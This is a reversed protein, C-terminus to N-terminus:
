WLNTGSFIYMYTLHHKQSRRLCLTRWQMKTAGFNSVNVKKNGKKKPTRPPLTLSDCKEIPKKLKAILTPTFGLSLNSAPKEASESTNPAINEWNEHKSAKSLTADENLSKVDCKEVYPSFDDCLLAEQNSFNCYTKMFEQRPKPTSRRGLFNKTRLLTVESTTPEVCIEKVSDDLSEREKVISNKRPAPSICSASNSKKRRGMSNYDPSSESRSNRTDTSSSCYSTQGTSNCRPQMPIYSYETPKKTISDTGPQCQTESNDFQDNTEPRRAPEDKEANDTEVSKSSISIDLEFFDTNSPQSSRKSSNTPHSFRPIDYLDNNVLGALGSSVTSSRNTSPTWSEGSLSSSNRLYNRNNKEYEIKLDYLKSVAPPTPPPSINSTPPISTNFDNGNMKSSDVKTSIQVNPYEYVHMEESSSLKALVRKHDKDNKLKDSTLSIRSEILESIHPYGQSKAIESASKKNCNLQQSAVNSGPLNLLSMVLKDFGNHAAWHILTPFMDDVQNVAKDSINQTEYEAMWSFLGLPANRSVFSALNQNLGYLYANENGNVFNLTSTSELTSTEMLRELTSIPTEVKILQGKNENYAGKTSYCNNGNVKLELMVYRDCYKDEYQSYSLFSCLRSFVKKSIVAEVVNSSPCRSELKILTKKVEYENELDKSLISAGSKNQKPPISPRAFILKNDSPVESEDRSTNVQMKVDPKLKADFQNKTENKSFTINDLICNLGNVNEKRESQENFDENKSKHEVCVFYAEIDDKSPCVCKSLLLVLSRQLANLSPSDFNDSLISFSPTGCRIIESSLFSNSCFSGSNSIEATQPLNYTPSPPTSMHITSPIRYHQEKRLEEDRKLICLTAKFLRESFTANQPGGSNIMESTEEEIDMLNWQQFTLLAARHEAKVDKATVGLLLGITSGTIDSNSEWLNSNVDGFLTGVILSPNRYVWDLFHYGVIVLHCKAHYTREELEILEQRIKRFYYLFKFSIM